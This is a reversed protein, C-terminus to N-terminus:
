KVATQKDHKERYINKSQQDQMHEIHAREQKTMKGDAMAKNEAKQVREQGKELRATEKKNLQGSQVGKDIRKEQNVQRKDIRPTSTTDSTQAIAAPPMAAIVFAILTTKTVNM